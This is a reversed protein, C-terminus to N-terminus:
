LIVTTAVEFEEAPIDVENDSADTARCKTVFVGEQGAAPPTYKVVIQVPGIYQVPVTELQAEFQGTLNVSISATSATTWENDVFTRYILTLNGQGHLADSFEVSVERDLSVRVYSGTAPPCPNVSQKNPSMAVRKVVNQAIIRNQAQGCPSGEPTPSSGFYTFTLAVNVYGPSSNLNVIKRFIPDVIVIGSTMM